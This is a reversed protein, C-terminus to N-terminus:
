NLSLTDEANVSSNSRRKKTLDSTKFISGQIKSAKISDKRPSESLNLTLDKLETSTKTPSGFNTEHEM